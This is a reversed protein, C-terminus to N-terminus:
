LVLDDSQREIAALVRHIEVPQASYAQQVSLLARCLEMLATGPRAVWESELKAVLSTLAASVEVASPAASKGFQEVDRSLERLLEPTLGAQSLRGFFHNIVALFRSLDSM